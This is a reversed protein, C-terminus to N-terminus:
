GVRFGARGRRTQSGRNPSQGSPRQGPDGAFGIRHTPTSSPAPWLGWDSLTDLALVRGIQKGEEHDVLLPITRGPFLKM